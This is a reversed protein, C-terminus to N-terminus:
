DDFINLGPSGCVWYSLEAQTVAMLFADGLDFSLLRKDPHGKENFRVAKLQSILEEFIPHIKLKKERVFNAATITMKSLESRFSIPYVDVNRDELEKILGADSSDVVVTPYENSMEVVREIMASPSPREFEVAEKIYVIGKKREVAVIAFKSTGYASDVALVTLGTGPTLDYEEICADVLQYPFINGEGVGYKGNYEREFSPMKKAQEIEYDTYIKGLGLKYFLEITKFERYKGKDMESYLGTPLNTTSNLVVHPHSKAEYRELVTMVSDIQNPPFFDAEDVFFLRCKDLGRATDFTHSPYATIQCGNIWLSDGAQKPRYDTNAFLDVLRGLEENALDQRPGTVVGMQAGMYSDDVVCLYGMMRLMLTTIGMGTAKKIRVYRNDFIFKYAELEYDYMPHKRKEFIERGDASKGVLHEKEPLGIIHWFCCKEGTKTGLKEHETQNEIWFPKGRM